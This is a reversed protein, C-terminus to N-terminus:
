YHTIDFVAQYRYEKTEQNTFNYDSNLRCAGISDQSIIADMKTKVEENLTAADLLTGGISQIAITARDVRDTRDSGTKEVIIYKTPPSTPREAFVNKAASTKDILYSIITAEIM